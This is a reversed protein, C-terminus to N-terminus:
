RKKEKSTRSTKSTKGAPSTESTTSPSPPARRGRGTARGGPAAREGSARKARGADSAAGEPGLGLAVRVHHRYMARWDLGPLSHGVLGGGLFLAGLMHARELDTSPGSLVGDARAREVADRFLDRVLRPAVHGFGPAIRERDAQTLEPLPRERPREAFWALVRRARAPATAVWAGMADFVHLALDVGVLGRAEAGCQVGFLWAVFIHDLAHEKTPFYNFFTVRSVGVASTLEDVTVDSVARDVLREALAEALAERTSAAKRERLGLEGPSSPGEHHTHAMEM